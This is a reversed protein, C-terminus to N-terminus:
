STFFSAYWSSIFRSMKGVSGPEHNRLAQEQIGINEAELKKVKQQLEDVAQQLSQITKSVIDEYVTEVEAMSDLSFIIGEQIFVDELMKIDENSM